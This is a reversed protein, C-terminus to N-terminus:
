PRSWTIAELLMPQEIRPPPGVSKGKSDLRLATSAVPHVKRSAPLDMALGSRGTTLV